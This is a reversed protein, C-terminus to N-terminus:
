AHCLQIQMVDTRKIKFGAYCAALYFRWLRMFKEDYGLNKLESEKKDFTQLWTDLTTAYDEGFSFEDFTKFGAKEAQQKFVSPSPLMGGPFIYSRIFDSTKRYRPFDSDNITITQILANGKTKLLQKIKSFYTQWYKEGVAEFMEISVINDYKGSQHRYDELRIDANTFLRQKAFEHQEESLTIGKIERDQKELCRESFGGWGCGIELLNGSTNNLRDIIRDYKNHQAVKISENPNNYIASSYTMTEDLWLSYFDNGLDYHAHINNKSGTISNRNFFYGLKTIWSILLNGKTYKDLATRNELILCVLEKVNPSNWNGDRYDEAFGIDGKLAINSFVSWKYVTIEATHGAHKGYFEYTQGDPTTLTLDGKELNDLHSLLKQATSKTFMTSHYSHSNIM